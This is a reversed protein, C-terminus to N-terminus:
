GLAVDIWETLSGHMPVLEDTGGASTFKWWGHDAVVVVLRRSEPPELLLLRWFRSRHLEAGRLGREYLGWLHFGFVEPRVAYRQLAERQRGRGLAGVDRLVSLLGQAWRTRVAGNWVRQGRSALLAELATAVDDMMLRGGTALRPLVLTTAIEFAAVDSALVYPLLLQPRAVPVTIRALAATLAPIGPLPGAGLYRQRVAAVIHKRGTASRKRLLRGGAIERSVDDISAGAGLRQLVLATDEVRLGCAELGPRVSGRRPEFNFLSVNVPVHNMALPGM